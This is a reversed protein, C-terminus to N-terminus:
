CIIVEPDENVLAFAGHDEVLPRLADADAGHLITKMPKKM